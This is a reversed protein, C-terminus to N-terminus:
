ASAAVAAREEFLWASADDESLFFDTGNRGAVRKTQMMELPSESVLMAIRRTLPGYRAIIAQLRATIDRSQVSSARVDVLLLCDGPQGAKAPMRAFAPALEQELRDITPHDMLGSFTMRMLKNRFDTEILYTPKSSM